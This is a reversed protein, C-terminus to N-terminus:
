NDGTIYSVIHSLQKGQKGYFLRWKKTYIILIKKSIKMYETYLSGYEFSLALNTSYFQNLGRQLKNCEM